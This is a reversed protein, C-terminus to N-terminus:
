RETGGDTGGDRDGKKPPTEDKKKPKEDKKSKQDSSPKDKKKLLSVSNKQM